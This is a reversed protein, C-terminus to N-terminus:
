TTYNWMHSMDGYEDVHWRDGDTDVFSEEEFGDSLFGFPAM